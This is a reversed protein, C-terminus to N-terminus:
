FKLILNWGNNLQAKKGYKKLTCVGKYESKNEM